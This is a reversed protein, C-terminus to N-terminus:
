KAEKYIMLAHNWIEGDPATCASYKIDILEIESNVSLFDNIETDIEIFKRFKESEETFYGSFLKAKIM